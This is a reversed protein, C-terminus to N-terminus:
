DFTGGPKEVFVFAEAGDRAVAASPVAPVPAPRGTVVTVRAAQGHRLPGAPPKALEVWVSVAQPGGDLVGATRVVTGDWASEPDAVFRVRAAQGVRVRP